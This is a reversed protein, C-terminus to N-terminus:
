RGLMFGFNGDFGLIYAVAAFMMKGLPPHVDVFFLKNLYDVTFGGFHQEDFSNRPLALVSKHSEHTGLAYKKNTQELIDSEPDLPKKQGRQTGVVGAGRIGRDKQREKLMLM